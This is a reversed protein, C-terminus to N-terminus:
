PRAASRDPSSECSLALVAVVACVIGAIGRAGVTELLLVAVRM